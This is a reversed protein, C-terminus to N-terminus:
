PTTPVRPFVRAYPAPRPAPASSRRRCARELERALPRADRRDHGPRREARDRFERRASGARHRRPLERGTALMPPQRLYASLEDASRRVSEALREVFAQPITEFAILRRHLKWLLGEPADLTQAAEELNMGRAKVANILSTLVPRRESLVGQGLERVRNESLAPANEATAYVGLPHDSFRAFVEDLESEREKLNTAMETTEGGRAAPLKAGFAGHRRFDEGGHGAGPRREGRAAGRRVELLGGAAGDRDFDLPGRRAGGPDGPRSEPRDAPGAPERDRGVRKGGAGGGRSAPRGARGATARGPELAESGLLGLVSGGLVRREAGHRLTRRVAERVSGAHLGRRGGGPAAVQRAAPRYARERAGDSAGALTWATEVDGERVCERIAWVLTEEKVRGEGSRVLSAQRMRPKLACLKEIEAEVSPERRYAAGDDKRTRTLPRPTWIDKM